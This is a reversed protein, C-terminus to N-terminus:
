SERVVPSGPLREPERRRPRSDPRRRSASSNYTLLGEELARVILDTVDNPENPPDVLVHRRDIDASTFQRYM